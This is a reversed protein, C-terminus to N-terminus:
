CGRIRLKLCEDKIRGQDTTVQVKIEATEGDTGGTVWVKAATDSHEVGDTVITGFEVEATASAIADGESLWRTFDFDYDLREDPSKRLVLTM